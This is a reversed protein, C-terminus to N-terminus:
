RSPIKVTATVYQGARIRNGPNDIHGKIVATRPNPDILQGIEDITGPLETASGPGAQRVSWRRENGRLAQLSPLLEAPCNAIVLLTSVDAIQFLNVTNDVVMEDVHVSREVVVGDIPARL